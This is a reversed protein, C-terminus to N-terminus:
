KQAVRLKELGEAYHKQIESSSFTKDYIRVDDIVGDFYLNPTTYFAGIVTKANSEYTILQTNDAERKGDVYLINKNTSADRTFAIHYWKGVTPSWSTKVYSCSGAGGGVLAAINQVAGMQLVIGKDFGTGNCDVMNTVIGNWPGFSDAKAWAEITISAPTLNSNIGLDIYDDGDFDLAQDKMGSVSQPNGTVIGNNSNGSGDSVTTTGSQENLSWSGVPELGHSINQSFRLAAAIRAKERSGGISIMVISALLGLIAIVVLLEILTFGLQKIKFRM